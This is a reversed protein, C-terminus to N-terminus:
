REHSAGMTEIGERFRRKARDYHTRASGHSVGMARAAERLSLEHYFVLMLVERQRRPLRELQRRVATATDGRELERDAAESSPSVAELARLRVLGIRRRRRRRQADIATNRIVRFLWTRFSSRGAFRARGELVKLYVSQLVDAAQERDQACCSLAWAYGQAHHEELLARLNM